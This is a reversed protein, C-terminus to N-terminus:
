WEPRRLIEAIVVADRLSEISRLMPLLEGLTVDPVSAVHAVAASSSATNQLRGLKHDFTQHLRAELKDDALDVQEGLHRAQDTIQQPGRLRQSFHDAIGDSREAVEAEVVEMDVPELYVVEQRQPSYQPPAQQQPFQQQPFQQQPMPRPQPVLRPPPVNRQAPPQAPQQPPALRQQQARAQAEAQARMQAVRRLFDEVEDKM